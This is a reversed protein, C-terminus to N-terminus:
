AATPLAKLYSELEEVLVLTRKGCKRRTLAGEHFLEYLKTKGIGSMAVAEPITVTIKQM